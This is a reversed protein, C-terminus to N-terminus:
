SILWRSKHRRVCGSSRAPIARHAVFVERWTLSHRKTPPPPPPSSCCCGSSRAPIARHTVFVERWAMSHRKTPAPPPPPRATVLLVLRVIQSTYSQPGRLGRTVGHLSTQPTHRAVVGQNRKILSRNVLLKQKRDCRTPMMTFAAKPSWRITASRLIQRNDKATSKLQSLPM